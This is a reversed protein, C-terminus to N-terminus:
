PASHLDRRKRRLLSKLLFVDGFYLLFLGLMMLAALSRIFRFSSFFLVATTLSMLFTVTFSAGALQDIGSTVSGSRRKSFLFQIPSDGALGVMLSAIVSTIFFVKIQFVLYIVLLAFVGWMSGLVLLISGRQKLAFCLFFLVIGVQVLSSGLSSLLTDLVREGFEGYSNVSGALECADGCIAEVRTRLENVHIIDTSRLFLFARARDSKSSVLRSAFPSNGWLSKLMGRHDNSVKETLADRVSYPDEIAVVLPDARLRSLIARNKEEKTFDELILSTEATWGRSEQITRVSQTYPHNEAYIEEPADNVNLKSYFLFAIPIVALAALAVWRPVLWPQIRAATRDIWNPGTTIWKELKPFVSVLAPLLCIIAIWELMSGIACEVGFRRIISLDSTALSAFGIATTLSTFFCPITLKRLAARLGAGSGKRFHSLFVFDELTAVMLLTPLVNSLNDIPWDFLGMVGYVLSLSFILTAEFLFASKWTGYLLRFLLLTILAAIGNLLLSQDYGIKLFYQYTGMGAWTSTMAPHPALYDSAFFGRLRDVLAYNFHGFRSDSDQDRLYFTLLIDDANKSSLFKGYVSDSITRLEGVVANAEEADTGYRGCDKRLFPTLQIGHDSDTAYQIGFSSYIKEVGDVAFPVKNMWALLDCLESSTPVEGPNRRKVLLVLNNKNPFEQRLVDMSAYTRFDPDILDDIVILTRLRSAPIMALLM